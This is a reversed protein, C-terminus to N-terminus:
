PARESATHSILEQLLNNDNKDDDHAAINNDSNNNTNSPSPTDTASGTSKSQAAKQRKVADELLKQTRYRAM